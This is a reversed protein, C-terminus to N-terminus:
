PEGEGSTLALFVDELSRQREVLQHLAIGRGLAPEGVADLLSFNRLRAKLVEPIIAEKGKQFPALLAMNRDPTGILLVMRSSSLLGNVQRGPDRAPEVFHGGPPTAALRIM